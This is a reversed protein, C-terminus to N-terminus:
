PTVGDVRVVDVLHAYARDEDVDVTCRAGCACATLEFTEWWWWDCEGCRCEAPHDIYEGYDDTFGRATAPFLPEGCEPCDLFPVENTNNSM